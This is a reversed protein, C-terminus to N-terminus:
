LAWLAIFTASTMEKRRVRRGSKGGQVSCTEEEEEEVVHTIGVGPCWKEEVVRVDGVSGEISGSISSYSALKGNLDRM